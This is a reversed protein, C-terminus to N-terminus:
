SLCPFSVSIGKQDLDQGEDQVADTCEDQIADQEGKSLMTSVKLAFLYCIVPMYSHHIILYLNFRLQTNRANRVLLNFILYHNSERAKYNTKERKAVECHDFTTLTTTRGHEYELGRTM